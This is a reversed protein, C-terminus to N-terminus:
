IFKKVQIKVRGRGTLGVEELIKYKGHGKITLICNEKLIRDKKIAELYDVLVKGQKIYDEAKSRSINCIASVVCDIRLSSININLKEFDYSPIEASNLDLISVNCAAKGVSTLNMKLYDTIENYVALYCEGNKLIFDGLKERKIGLAMVAGLYDKHALKVFKNSTSIKLLDIPYYWIDENSFAIIKRQADEFFGYCSVRIGLECSLSELTKCVEPTQFETTYITSNTREALLIKEYINSATSVNIFQLKNLFTKKDM